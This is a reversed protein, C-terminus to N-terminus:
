GAGQVGAAADEVLGLEALKRVTQRADEEIAGPEASHRLELEAVLEGFTTSGDCGEWVAVAGANLLILLQGVDDYVALNDDLDVGKTGPRRCPLSGVQPWESDARM